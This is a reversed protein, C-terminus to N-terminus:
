TAFLNKNAKTKVLPVFKQIPPFTYTIYINIYIYLMSIYNYIYIYTYYIIHFISYPIKVQYTHEENLMYKDLGVLALCM